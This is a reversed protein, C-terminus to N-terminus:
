GAGPGQTHEGPCKATKRGREDAKNDVIYGGHRESGPDPSDFYVDKIEWETQGVFLTFTGTDRIVPATGAVWYTNYPELNVDIDQGEEKETTRDHHYKFEIGASFIGKFSVEVKVNFGVSDTQILNERGHVITSGSVEGCATVPEGWLRKPTFTEEEEEPVFKCENAADCLNKLAKRQNVLENAGIVVKTGPPEAFTITEHHRGEVQCQHPDNTGKVCVTERQLGPRLLVTYRNSFGISATRDAGTLPNEIEVHMKAGPNLVYGVRPAPTKGRGEEFVPGQNAPTTYAQVSTITLTEDTANTIDYGQTRAFAPAASVALLGLSALLVGVLVKVRKRTM